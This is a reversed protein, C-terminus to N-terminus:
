ETYDNLFGKTLGKAANQSKDQILIQTFALSQRIKNLNRAELDHGTKVISRQYNKIIKERAQKM